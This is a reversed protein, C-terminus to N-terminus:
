AQICPLLGFLIAAAKDSEDAKFEARPIMILDVEQKAERMAPIEANIRAVEDLLSRHKDRLVDLAVLREQADTARANIRQLEANYERLTAPEKTAMEYGLIIHEVAKRNLALDMARLISVKVGSGAMEGVARYLEQAERVSISVKM